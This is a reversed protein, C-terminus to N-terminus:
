NESTQLKALTQPSYNGRRREEVRDRRVTDFEKLLFQHQNMLWTEAVIFCNYYISHKELNHFRGLLSKTNWQIFSFNSQNALNTNIM